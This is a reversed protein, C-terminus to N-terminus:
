AMCTVTFLSGYLSNVSLLICAMSLCNNILSTYALSISSGAPFRVISVSTSAPSSATPLADAGDPTKEPRYSVAPGRSSPPGPPSRYQWSCRLRSWCRRSWHLRSRPTLSAASFIFLLSASSIMPMFTNQWSSISRIRVRACRSAALLWISVFARSLMETAAARAAHM